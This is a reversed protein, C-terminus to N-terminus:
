DQLGSWEGTVGIVTPQSPRAQLVVMGLEHLVASPGKANDQGIIKSHHESIFNKTPEIEIRIEPGM